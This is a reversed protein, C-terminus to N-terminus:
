FILPSYHHQCQRPSPSVVLINVEVELHQDVEFLHCDLLQRSLQHGVEEISVHPIRYDGRIICMVDTVMCIIDVISTRCVDTNSDKLAHDGQSIILTLRLRDCSNFTQDLLM